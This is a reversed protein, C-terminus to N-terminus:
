RAAVLLSVTEFVAVIVHFPKNGGSASGSDSGSASGSDSGSCSGSGSVSGTIVM